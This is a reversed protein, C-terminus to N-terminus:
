SDGSITYCGDRLKQWEKRFARLKLATMVLENVSRRDMGGKVALWGANFIEPLSYDLPPLSDFIQALASSLNSFYPPSLESIGKLRGEGGPFLVEALALRYAEGYREFTLRDSSVVDKGQWRLYLSYLYPYLLPEELIDEPLLLLFFERVPYFTPYCGDYISVIPKLGSEEELYAKLAWPIDMRLGRLLYRLLRGLFKLEKGSVGQSLREKIYRLGLLVSASSFPLKEFSEIEYILREIKYNMIGEMEKMIVYFYFPSVM